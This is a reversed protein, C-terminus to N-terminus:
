VITLRFLIDLDPYDFPRFQYLDVFSFQAVKGGLQFYLVPADPFLELRFVAIDDVFFHRGTQRPTLGRTMLTTWNRWNGKTLIMMRDVWKWTRTKVSTKTPM